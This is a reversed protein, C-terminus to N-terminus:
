DVDPHQIIFESFVKTTLLLKIGQTKPLLLCKMHHTKCVLLITLIFIFNNEVHCVLLIVECRINCFFIKLIFNNYTYFQLNNNLRTELDHFFLELINASVIFRKNM